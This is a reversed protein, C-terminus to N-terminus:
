EQSVSHSGDQLGEYIFKWMEGAQSKGTLGAEVIEDHWNVVATRMAEQSTMWVPQMHRIWAEVEEVAVDKKPILLNGIKLLQEALSRDIVKMPESWHKEALCDTYIALQKVMDLTYPAESEQDFIPRFDELRRAGRAVLEPVQWMVNKATHRRYRQWAERIEADSTAVAMERLIRVKGSEEISLIALAAASAFRDAQIMVTADDALRRANRAAGNMGEALEKASLFSMYQDLRKKM